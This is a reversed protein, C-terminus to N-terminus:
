RRREKAVESAWTISSVRVDINRGPIWGEAPVGLVGSVGLLTAWGGLHEQAERFRVVVGALGLVYKGPVLCALALVPPYGAQVLRGYDESLVAVDPTMVPAVVADAKRGEDCWKCPLVRVRDDEVLGTVKVDTDSLGWLRRAVDDPIKPM